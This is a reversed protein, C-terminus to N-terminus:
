SLTKNLSNLEDVKDRLINLDTAGVFLSNGIILSPTGEISLKKALLKSDYIMQNIKDKHKEMSKYFDNKNVGISEVINLIVIDSLEDNCSLLSNHFDLYKSSDIFYIALASQAAKFSYKGLIPIDRFIYKIKGDNILQQVDNKIRKCYVCSYDFFEIVIVNSNENGFHPYFLNHLENKHKEINDKTEKEKLALRNKILNDQINDVIKDINRSIYDDLKKDLYSDDLIDREKISEKSNRMYGSLWNNIIPLSAVLLILALLLFMRLAYKM